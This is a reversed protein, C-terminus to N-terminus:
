NSLLSIGENKWSQKSARLTHYHNRISYYRSVGFEPKHIQNWLTRSQTIEHMPQSSQQPSLLEGKELHFQHFTIFSGSTLDTPELTVQNAFQWLNDEYSISFATRRYIGACVHLQDKFLRNLNRLCCLQNQTIKLILLNPGMQIAQPIKNGAHCCM